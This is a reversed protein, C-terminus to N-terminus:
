NCLDKLYRIRIIEEHRTQIQYDKKIKGTAKIREFAKELNKRGM